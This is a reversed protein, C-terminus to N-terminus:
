MILFWNNSSPCHWLMNECKGDDVLCCFEFHYLYILTVFKHPSLVSTLIEKLFNCDKWQLIKKEDMVGFRSIPIHHFQNWSYEQLKSLWQMKHMIKLIKYVIYIYNVTLCLIYFNFGEDLLTKNVQNLGFPNFSKLQLRFSHFYWRLQMIQLIIPEIMQLVDNTSITNTKCKWNIFSCNPVIYNSNIRYIM